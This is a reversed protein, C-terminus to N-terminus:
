SNLSLQHTTGARRADLSWPHTPQAALLLAAACDVFVSYDLAEKPGFSCTMALAFLLTLAAAGYGAWRTRYGVLLLLGLSSELVTALVALGPILGAPAFSNVQRTYAVFGAWGSSHAGWLGLRSAVASLFTAALAVRLLLAAVGQVGPRLAPRAAPPAPPAPINAPGNRHALKLLQFAGRFDFIVPEKHSFSSSDM